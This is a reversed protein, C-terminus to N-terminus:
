MVEPNLVNMSGKGAWVDLIIEACTQDMREMAEITYAAIHPTAVVNELTILPSDQPPETAFVDLAAAAIRGGKLEKYLAQEDVLEGRAANVLFAGPKVLSLERAGIMKRTQAILPVHLTILDSGSLLEDLSVYRIGYRSVLDEQQVV